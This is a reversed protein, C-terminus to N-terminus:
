GMRGNRVCGTVGVVETVLDRDRPEGRNSAEDKWHGFCIMKGFESGEETVQRGRHGPGSPRGAGAWNTWTWNLEQGCVAGVAEQRVEHVRLRALAPRIEHIRLRTVTQWVEDHRLRAHTQRRSARRVDAQNDPQAHTQRVAPPRLRTGAQGRLRVPGARLGRVPTRGAAASFSTLYRIM